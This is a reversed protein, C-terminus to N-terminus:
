EDSGGLVVKLRDEDLFDIKSGDPVTENLKELQPIEVEQLFIALLCEARNMCFLPDELIKAHAEYLRDDDDDDDDDDSDSAEVRESQNSEAIESELVGFSGWEDYQAVWKADGTREALEAELNDLRMIVGMVRGALTQEEGQNLMMGDDAKASSEQRKQIADSAFQGATVMVMLPDVTETVRFHMFGDDDGDTDDDSPPKTTALSQTARAKLAEAIANIATPHISPRVGNDERLPDGIKKKEDNDQHTTNANEIDDKSKQEEEAMMRSVIDAIDDSIEEEKAEDDDDDDDDDDNLSFISDKASLVFYRNPICNETTTTVKWVAPEVGLSRPHTPSFALSARTLLAVVLSVAILTWTNMTIMM